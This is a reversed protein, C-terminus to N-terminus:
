VAHKMYTQYEHVDKELRIEAYLMNHWKYADETCFGSVTQELTEGKNLLYVPCGEALESFICNENYAHPHLRCILPRVELPLTCGSQGLFCCNGFPDLKLVRRTGDPKFVCERWLPDGDQELYSHDAPKRYEYFGSKDTYERIRIVDNSTVYIDSRQCCTKGM